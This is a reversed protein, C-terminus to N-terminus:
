FIPRLLSLAIRLKAFNVKGDGVTTSNIKGLELRPSEFVFFSQPTLKKM